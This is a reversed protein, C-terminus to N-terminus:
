NAFRKLIGTTKFTLDIQENPNIKGTVSVTQALTGKTVDATTYTTKPQRSKVYWFVGGVIAVIILIWITWKKARAM